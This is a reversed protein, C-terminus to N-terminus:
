KKAKTWEPMHWTIRISRICADSLKRAPNDTFALGMDAVCPQYLLAGHGAEPVLAVQASTMKEVAVAAWSAPTQSDYLGGISLVPIDSAVPAFWNDRPQPKFASCGGFFGRALGDLEEGIYPYKLGASYARFGEYSNYPSDEQCAYNFLYMSEFFKAESAAADRQIIAFSGTVEAASMGAVLALLRARAEGAMHAGVFANLAEKSPPATQLAVYDALIRELRSPDAAKVARLAKELERDFLVAVPGFQGSEDLQDRLQAMVHVNSREVRQAIAANDVLTGILARQAKPLSAAAAAVDDDGAAPMIFNRSVLMDVTPMEQGRYLEYVFAPIYPTMSLVGDRGNRDAFPRFITLPTVPKGQHVIQGAKARRLTEVIVTDLNPYAANCAADAKCQAVVHDMPESVKLGFTEYLRVWPPAVGDLIVSRIGEPAVRMTELALKTGYSIGYLNYTPYGLARTVTRVDLANERTNYRTIDVGAAEIERLCSTVTSTDPGSAGLQAMTFKGQAIRAANQSLAAYCNVSHGSLGASRQDWFVIDRTQRWPAFVKGLKNLITFTSGGPGGQLYVLPDPEPYLSRAKMITFKLPITKGDPKAHDEPVMVTGCFMTKGEIEDVPFPRPCAIQAIPARPDTGGAKLAAFDEGTGGTLVGVLALIQTYDM